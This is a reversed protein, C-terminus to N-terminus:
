SSETYSSISKVTSKFQAKIRQRSFIPHQLRPKVLQIIIKVTSRVIISPVTSFILICLFVVSYSICIALTSNLWKSPDLGLAGVFFNGELFAPKTGSIICMFYGPLFIIWSFLATEVYIRLPYKSIIIGLLLFLHLGSAVFFTIGFYISYFGIKLHEFALILFIIRFLNNWIFYFLM